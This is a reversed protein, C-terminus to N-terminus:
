RRGPMVWLGQINTGDTIFKKRRIPEDSHVNDTPITKLKYALPIYKDPLDLDQHVNDEFDRWYNVSFPWQSNSEPRYRAWSSSLM